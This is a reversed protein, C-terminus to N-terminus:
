KLSMFQLMGVVFLHARPSVQQTLRDLDRRTMKLKRLSPIERERKSFFHASTNKSRSFHAAKRHKGPTQINRHGTERGKLNFRSQACESSIVEVTVWAEYKGGGSRVEVCLAEWVVYGCMMGRGM